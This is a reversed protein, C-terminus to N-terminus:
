HNPLLLGTRRWRRWLPVTAPVKGLQMAAAQLRPAARAASVDTWCAPRETAPMARASGIAPLTTIACNELERDILM